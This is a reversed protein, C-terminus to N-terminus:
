ASGSAFVQKLTNSAHQAVRLCNTVPRAGEFGPVGAHEPNARWRLQDLAHHHSEQRVATPVKGADFNVDDFIAADAQRRPELAAVHVQGDDRLPVLPEIPAQEIRDVYEGDHIPVM